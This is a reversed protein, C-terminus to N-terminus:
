LWASVADGSHRRVALPMSVSLPAPDPQTRYREDYHVHAARGVGARAPRRGRRGHPRHPPRRDDAWTPPSTRTSTSPRCRLPRPGADTATDPDTSALDIGLADIVRLVGALEVSAKGRELDSVWKRSVGARTALEGQAWGADLRRGRVLSALDHVTRIRM